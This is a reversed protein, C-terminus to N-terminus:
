RHREPLASLSALAAPDVCGCYERTLNLLGTRTRFFLRPEWGSNKDRPNGKRRQVVWQLGDDVVRWNANLVVPFSLCPHARRPFRRARYPVSGPGQEASERM